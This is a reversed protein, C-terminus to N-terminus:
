RRLPSKLKTDFDAPVYVWITAAADKKLRQELEGRIDEYM